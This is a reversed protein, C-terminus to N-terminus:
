KYDDLRIIEVDSEPVEFVKIFHRGRKVLRFSSLEDIKDRKIQDGMEQNREYQRVNLIREVQKNLRYFKYFNYLHFVIVSFSLLTLVWFALQINPNSVLSYFSM